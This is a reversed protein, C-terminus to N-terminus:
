LKRIAVTGSKDPIPVLREPKDALFEDVAKEVGDWYLSSYDHIILFGGSVMRPYFFELGALMPAYLDCDLHVLMFTADKPVAVATRPFYGPVFLVGEKGVLREVTDLSTDGFDSQRAKHTADIGILDRDPLSEFTDFLYAKRGKRRALEALLFATNGKYVGLEAVDGQLCEKDILDCVLSLFHFRVLDGANREANEHIFAAESEPSYARGRSRYKEFNDSFRDPVRGIHLNPRGEIKGLYLPIWGEGFLRRFIARRL